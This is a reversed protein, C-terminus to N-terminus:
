QSDPPAQDLWEEYFTDIDPEFKQLVPYGVPAADVELLNYCNPCFFERLQMDWEADPSMNPAYVEEMEEESQRVRVETHEKWNEDLSCLDHGCEARVVRGEDTGVAYLHDNLPVLIPDEWDVREQLVSRVVEFRHADKPDPLIDGSLEEWSLQGDILQRITEEDKASM